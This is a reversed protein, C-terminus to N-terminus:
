GKEDLIPNQLRFSARKQLTPGTKVKLNGFVRDRRKQLMKGLALIKSADTQSKELAAAMNEVKLALPLLERTGVFKEGHAEFWLATFEHWESGVDGGISARQEKINDLFGGIQAVELIGGMVRAWESFRCRNPGSYNPTGAAQWARVLTILAGCVKARNRRIFQQPDGVFERAEPDERNPDIQILISRTAADESLEANNATAVWVCRAPASVMEGTGTKRDRFVGSTIATDLASSNLNGKLNDLFIHSPGTQLEALLSKRWEEPSSKEPTSTPEAFPLICLEAGYSKGSSRLPANWLHLPTAGYILNRVFPLLMQAVAHARSADDAFAVEGLIYRLLLRRAAEINEPSPATDDLDFNAPLELWLRASSHYGTFACLTGDPAFFPASATGQIPPIGKWSDQDDLYIECLDRPPAVNSVGERESTRIWHAAKGAIAQITSRSASKLHPVDKANRAIRVLGDFGFFLTPTQANFAEIAHSLDCLEDAQQRNNTEVVRAGASRAEAEIQARQEKHQQVKQQRKSEVEGVLDRAFQYLGKTEGGRAFYDDLGTKEGNPGAPLYVVKVTAGRSQLFNCLRRLANEVTPKTAVDSDFVVLVLRSITRGTEPHKGKLPVDEWDSLAAIGGKLNRGSFGYVGNLSISVLGNSAGSDAKKAGETILLPVLPNDLEGRTLVSIDLNPAKGQPLEYKIPKGKNDNRPINPKIAHNVVEGRANHIPIVLAPVRAAQQASFGLSRLLERGNADAEVSFYGRAAIADSSIASDQELERRHRPSLARAGLSDPSDPHGFSATGNTPHGNQSPSHLYAGDQARQSEGQTYVKKM